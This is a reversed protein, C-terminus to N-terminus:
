LEPYPCKNRLHTYINVLGKIEPYNMAIFSSSYGGISWGLFTFLMNYDITILILNINQKQIVNKFINHTRKLIGDFSLNKEKKSSETCLINIFM